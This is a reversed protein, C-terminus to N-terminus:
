IPTISTASLGTGSGASGASRYTATYTTNAAPTSVTHARAGGDSWSVFEYTTTGSAQPSSAELSRVIGAVADFTVPTAIPQGDLRLQLGAPNTALTLAVKRPMIDRQVTRTAGASDRVTLYIRYWVNASTEGTTPTTFTGSQAGTTAAMFPHTHTDHHFDVRWTFAGAPLTGDEADSGTGAYNIVLGGSYLTGAGPATITATPASNSTVTLVADASTTSGFDNTVVARFRAGNDTQAVSAITYDQATAGAINSGNRQWQYRLPAQGSARVSFTVSAGPAVTRSAPQSTIAPASAGYAVRYVV